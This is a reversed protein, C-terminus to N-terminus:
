GRNLGQDMLLTIKIKDEMEVMTVVTSEDSVMRVVTSTVTSRTYHTNSLTTESVSSACLVAGCWLWGTGGGPAIHGVTTAPLIGPLGGARNCHYGGFLM